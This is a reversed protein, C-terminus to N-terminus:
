YHYDYYYYHYYYYNNNTDNNNNNNNNNIPSTMKLKARISLEGTNLLARTVKRQPPWVVFFKRWRAQLHSSLGISRLDDCNCKYFDQFYPLLEVWPPFKGRNVM